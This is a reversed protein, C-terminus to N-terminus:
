QQKPHLKRYMKVGNALATIDIKTLYASRFYEGRKVSFELKKEVLFKFARVTVPENLSDDPYGIAVSGVMEMEAGKSQKALEKLQDLTDQAEALTNGIPIFLNFLPDVNFQIVKDGVGLTGVCLYYHEQGNEPMSFVMVEKDGNEIQAIETTERFLKKKEQAFAATCVVALVILTIIRKM